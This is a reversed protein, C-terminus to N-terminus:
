PMSPMEEGMENGTGRYVLLVEPLLPQIPVIWGLDGTGRWELCFALSQKSQSDSRQFCGWSGELGLQAGNIVYLLSIM